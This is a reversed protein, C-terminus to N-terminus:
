CGKELGMNLRKITHCMEVCDTQTGLKLTLRIQVKRHEMCSRSVSKEGLGTIMCTTEPKVKHWVCVLAENGLEGHLGASDDPSISRQSPFCSVAVSCLWGSSDGEITM